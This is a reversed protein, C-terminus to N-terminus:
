RYMYHVFANWAESNGGGTTWAENGLPISACEIDRDSVGKLFDELM